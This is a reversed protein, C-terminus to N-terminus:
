ETEHQATVRERRVTEAATIAKALLQPDERALAGLRQWADDSSAQVEPDPVATPEDPAIFPQPPPQVPFGNEDIRPHKGASKCKHNGCSCRGVEDVTHLPLVRWGREAYALAAKLLENM